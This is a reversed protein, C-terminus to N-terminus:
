HILLCVLSIYVEGGDGLFIQIVVNESCGSSISYFTSTHDSWILPIVAQNQGYSCELLFRDRAWGVSCSTLKYHGESQQLFLRLIDDDEVIQWVSGAEAGVSRRKKTRKQSRSEPSYPKSCVASFGVKTIFGRIYEDAKTKKKQKELPALQDCCSAESQDSPQCKVCM